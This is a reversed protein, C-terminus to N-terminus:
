DWGRDDAACSGPSYFSAGTASMRKLKRRKAVRAARKKTWIVIGTVSLITVILGMACVFVRMPWGFITAMHYGFLWETAQVGSADEAPLYIAFIRGDTGKLWLRSSGEQIDGSSSFRYSYMGTAPDYELSRERGIKGGRRGLEGDAARRALMLAERRGISPEEIPQALPSVEVMRSRMDFALSMIPTYVQGLGMLVSSWAFLLLFVWMWLSMARHLDFNFKHRNTPMRISWAPRWRRFWIAGFITHAQKIPFTLYLGVFSDITWILAMVGLIFLGGVTPMAISTHLVYIVDMLNRRTIPWLSSQYRTIVSGTYPHIVLTDYGLEYPQGTRPDTRAVPGFIATTAPNDPEALDLTSFIARPEARRAADLLQFASLRRAGAPAEVIHIEPALWTRLEGGYTILSGTLGTLILFPAIALGAYRHVGVWAARRFPSSWASGAREHASM